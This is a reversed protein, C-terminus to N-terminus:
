TKMTSIRLIKYCTQNFDLHSILKIIRIELKELNRFISTEDKSLTKLAIFSLCKICYSKIKSSEAACGAMMLIFYWIVLHALNYANMIKIGKYFKFANMIKIGKYFKCANM